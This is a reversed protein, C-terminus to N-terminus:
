ESRLYAELAEEVIKNEPVRLGSKFSREIASLKLKDILEEPLVFVKQKCNQKRKAEPAQM